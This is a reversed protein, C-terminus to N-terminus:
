LRPHDPNIAIIKNIDLSQILELAQPNVGMMELEFDYSKLRKYFFAIAGLGSSDMNKSLSLDLKVNRDVHEILHDFASKAQDAIKYDLDTLVRVLVFNEKMEICIDPFKDEM